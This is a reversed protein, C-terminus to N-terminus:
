THTNVEKAATWLRDLEIAAFSNNRMENTKETGCNHFQFKASWLNWDGVNELSCLHYIFWRSCSVSFISYLLLRCRCSLLLFHIQLLFHLVATSIITTLPPPARGPLIWVIIFVSLHWFCKNWVRIAAKAVSHLFCFVLFSFPCTMWSFSMRVRACLLHWENSDFGLIFNFSVLVLSLNFQPYSITFRSFAPPATSHLVADFHYRHRHMFTEM